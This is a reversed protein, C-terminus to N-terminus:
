PAPPPAVGLAAGVAEAADVLGHGKDYSTTDDANRPDSVYAGGGSFKHATDELSGRAAVSSVVSSRVHRSTNM